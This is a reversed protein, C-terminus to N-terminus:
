NVSPKVLWDESLVVFCRYTGSGGVYLAYIEYETNSVKETVATFYNKITPVYKQSTKIDLIPIGGDVYDKKTFYMWYGASYDIRVNLGVLKVIKYTKNSKNLFTSM